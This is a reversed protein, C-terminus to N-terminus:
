RVSERTGTSTRVPKDGVAEHEGGAPDAAALQGALRGLAIVLPQRRARRSGRNGDRGGSLAAAGKVDWPLFVVRPIRLAGAIEDGKFPCPGVVALTSRGAPLRSDPLYQSVHTLSEAGGRTVVVAHDAVDLFPQVEDTLRGVDLLVTGRDAEEGLLLRRGAEGALLRVAQTCPRRGPVAPVVRVGVPLEHVAGLLSGPHPQGAAAAVDLLSPAPPLGFRIMVDGGCCDAEVMVPRVGDDAQVPWGAALALVSTTVGPAGSVSGVVVLRRM